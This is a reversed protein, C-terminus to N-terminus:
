SNQFIIYELGYVLRSTKWYRSTTEIKSAQGPTKITLTEIKDFYQFQSGIRVFAQNSDLFKNVALTREYPDDYFITSNQQWFDRNLACIDCIFTKVHSGFGDMSLKRLSIQHNNNNFQRMYRVNQVRHKSNSHVNSVYKYYDHLNLYEICQSCSSHNYWLRDVLKCTRCLQLFDIFTLTHCHIDKIHFISM